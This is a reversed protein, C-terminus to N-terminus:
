DFVEDPYVGWLDSQKIWGRTGQMDMRCWQGNCQRVTGIVNPEIEAALGSTETPDRHMTIMSGENNKLWPATIATRKGSLLSQYVWGETGDADRIRRWNDYEQIIEVPLGSKMFLWSVAYDRGPGVRLNVRAPKLSVFRPVPLGSAGLTTGSTAQAMAAHQHSAGLPGIVLLMVISGLVAMFFRQSLVRYM